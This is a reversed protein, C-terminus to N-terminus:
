AAASLVPAAVPEMTPAISPVASSDSVEVSVRGGGTTQRHLRKATQWAALVVTNDQFSARVIADLRAVARRGRRVEVALGERAAVHMGILAARGRLARELDNRAGVFQALFDAPLGRAVFVAEFPRAAEIMGDCAQLMKVMSTPLKPLRLAAPLREDSNPEIQSKAITVIPRMHENVMRRVLQRQGRLEARSLEQGSVQAGAFEFLRRVAEDLAQRADTYNLRGTVPHADTFAQVRVFSDMARKGHHLM